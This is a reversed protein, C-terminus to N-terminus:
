PVVKGSGLLLSAQVLVLLLKELLQDFGERIQSFIWPVGTERRMFDIVQCAFVPELNKLRMEFVVGWGGSPYEPGIPRFRSVDGHQGDFGVRLILLSASVLANFQRSKRRFLLAVSAWLTPPVFTWQYLGRLPQVAAEGLKGIAEHYRRLAEGAWEARDFARAQLKKLDLDLAKSMTRKYDQAYGPMSAFGLAGSSAAAFRVQCHQRRRAQLHVPVNPAWSDTDMRDKDTTLFKTHKTNIGIM